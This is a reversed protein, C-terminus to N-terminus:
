VVMFGITIVGTFIGDNGNGVVMDFAGERINNIYPTILIDSYDMVTALIVSTASVHSNNVTFINIDENNITMSISTIVGASTNITVPTVSSVLQTVTAKTVDIKNLQVSTFKKDSALLPPSPVNM